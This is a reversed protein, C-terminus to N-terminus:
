DRTSILYGLYSLDKCRDRPLGTDHEIDRSMNGDILDLVAAELIQVKENDPLDNYNGPIKTTSM